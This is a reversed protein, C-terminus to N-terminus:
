IMWFVNWWRKPWHSGTVEARLLFLFFFSLSFFLFTGLIIVLTSISISERGNAYMKLTSGSLGSRHNLICKVILHLDFLFFIYPIKRRFFGKSGFTNPEKSLRSAIVKIGYNRNKSDFMKKEGKKKRHFFVFNCNIWCYLLIEYGIKM